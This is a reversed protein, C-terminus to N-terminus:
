GLTPKGNAIRFQAIFNTFYDYLVSTKLVLMASRCPAYRNKDRQGLAISVAFRQSLV